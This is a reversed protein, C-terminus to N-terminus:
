SSQPSTITGCFPRCSRLRSRSHVMAWSYCTSQVAQWYAAQTLTASADPQTGALPTAVPPPTRQAAQPVADIVGRLVDKLAVAQYNDDGVDISHGRAHITGVPLTATFDGTTVEIPRYGIALLCDSSEITERM